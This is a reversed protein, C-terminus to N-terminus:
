CRHELRWLGVDITGSRFGAECYCLYYDWMRQFRESFGQAAIKPWAAHFRQRWLELTRAYSAGFTEAHAIHLGAAAVQEGLAAPSLLMGGPFIYRQIFDVNRRYSDFRADAITITQLVVVGGPKLSRKLMEFYSPWWREGVAELMEISVIRDFSGEIGRYDQLRLDTRRDLEAIQLRAQAYALQARSLTLGTVHCGAEAMRKVQGGWGFGVELVTQGPALDLLAMIRAQKATQADELDTEGDLFLGSSYSMGSDLWAAYFDNGLDYHQQINRRSGALTNRRGLHYLRQLLRLPLAGGDAGPLTTRNRAALEILATLDPSSWDGDMYAEAFGIDGGLALRRFVRWRHLALVAEPGPRGTQHDIQRGDPLVLLLSGCQLASLLRHLLKGAAGARRAPIVSGMRNDMVQSM